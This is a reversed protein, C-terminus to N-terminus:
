YAATPAPCSMTSMIWQRDVDVAISRQLLSISVVLKEEGRHGLVTGSVGRLPGTHICVREGIPPFEFPTVNMKSELLTIVGAIESPDIPVPRRGVGVIHLVGPVVLAPLRQNIDMRCFVYGPFLPREVTRTDYGRMRCERYLPLVVEYDRGRLADSTVRERNSKVRIAYWSSDSVTFM